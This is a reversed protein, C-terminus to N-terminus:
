TTADILVDTPDPSTIVIRRIESMPTLTAGTIRAGGSPTPSWTAAASWNGAGDVAWLQYSDRAPLGTLAVRIETGWARAETTVRTTDAQSTIVTAATPVSESDDSGPLLTLLTVGAAVATAALAARRWHRTRRQMSALEAHARAAFSVAQGTAPTHAIDAPEIKAILGTLPAFAALEAACVPCSPLHREFLDRDDADLAGLTYAAAWEAYLDHDDSM